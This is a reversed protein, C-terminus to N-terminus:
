KFTNYSYACCARTHWIISDDNSVNFSWSITDGAKVEFIISRSMTGGGREGIHISDSIVAQGSKYAAMSADMEWDNDHNTVTAYMDLYVFGDYPCTYGSGIGIHHLQVISNSLIRIKSDTDYYGKEPITLATYSNSSSVKTATVTEGSHNPMAGVLMSNESGSAFTKGDLVDDV